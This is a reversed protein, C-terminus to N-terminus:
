ERLGAAEFAADRDEGFYKLEVPKGDRFTWVNAVHVDVEVGSARGEAQFRILALM